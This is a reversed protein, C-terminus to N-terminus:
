NISPPINSHKTVLTTPNRSVHTVTVTSSGMTAGLGLAAWSLVVLSLVLSVNWANTVLIIGTILLRVTMAMMIM